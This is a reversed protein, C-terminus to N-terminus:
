SKVPSELAVLQGEIILTPHEPQTEQNVLLKALDIFEWRCIKQGSRSPNLSEKQFLLQHPVTRAVIELHIGLPLPLQLSVDHAIGLLPRGSVWDPM